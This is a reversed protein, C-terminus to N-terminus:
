KKNMTWFYKVLTKPISIFDETFDLYICNKNKSIFRYKIFLPTEELLGSGHRVRGHSSPSTSRSQSRSTGSSTGFTRSTSTCPWCTLPPTWWNGSRCRVCLWPTQSYSSSSTQTSSSPFCM